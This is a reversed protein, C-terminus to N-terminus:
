VSSRLRRVFESASYVSVSFGGHYRSGIKVSPPPNEQTRRMVIREIYRRADELTEEFRDYAAYLEAGCDIGGVKRVVGSHHIINRCYNDRYM